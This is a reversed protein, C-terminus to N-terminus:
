FLVPQVAVAKKKPKPEVAVYDIEQTTHGATLLMEAVVARHCQTADRCVCMIVVPVRTAELIRLGAGFDVLEIPGARYNKNGWARIHRYANGFRAELSERRWMPNASSPSFRIDFVMGGNAIFKELTVMAGPVGYGMTYVLM